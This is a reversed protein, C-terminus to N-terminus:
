NLSNSFHLYPQVAKTVRSEPLRPTTSVFVSPYLQTVLVVVCGFCDLLVFLVLPLLFIDLIYKLTFQGKQLIFCVMKPFLKKTMHLNLPPKAESM